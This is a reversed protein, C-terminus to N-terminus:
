SVAHFYPSAAALVIKHAPVTTLGARLKVDCLQGHIRMRYMGALGAAAHGPARHVLQVLPEGPTSPEAPQDPTTTHPEGGGAVALM